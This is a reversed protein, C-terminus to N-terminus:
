NETFTISDNELRWRKLIVGTGILSGGGFIAFVIPSYEIFWFSTVTGIFSLWIGMLFMERGFIVGFLMYLIGIIFVSYLGLHISSFTLFGTSLLVIFITVIAVFSIGVKGFQKMIFTPIKDEKEQKKILYFNVIFGAFSLLSFIAYGFGFAACGFGILWVLGWLIFYPGVESAYYRNKATILSLYELNEQIQKLQSEEM